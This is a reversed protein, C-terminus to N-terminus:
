SCKSVSSGSGFVCWWEAPWNAYKHVRAVCGLPHAIGSWKIMDDTSDIYGVYATDMDLSNNKTTGPM